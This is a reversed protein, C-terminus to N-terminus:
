YILKVISTDVPLKERVLNLTRMLKIISVNMEGGVEFM